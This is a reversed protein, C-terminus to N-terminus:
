FKEGERKPICCLFRFVFFLFFVERVNPKTRQCNRLYDIASLQCANLLPMPGETRPERNLRLEQPKESSSGLTRPTDAVRKSFGAPPKKGVRFCRFCYWQVQGGADVYASRSAELCTRHYCHCCRDYPSTSVPCVMVILAGATVTERFEGSEEQNQGTQGVVIQPIIQLFFSAVCVVAENTQVSGRAYLIYHPM